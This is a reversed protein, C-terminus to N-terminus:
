SVWRERFAARARHLRSKVTGPPADVLRAAAEESLGEVDRLVLIARQDPSLTALVAAIDTGTELDGPAPLDVDATTAERNSRKSPGV